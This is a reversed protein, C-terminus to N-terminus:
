GHAALWRWVHDAFSRRVIMEVRPGNEGVGRHLLTVATKAFMTGACDGPGFARPHLDLACASALLDLAGPGAIELTAHGSGVATVAPVSRELAVRLLHSRADIGSPNSGDGSSAADILLFEDPGLWALIRGDAAVFRCPAPFALGTAALLAERANSDGPDARVNLMTRFPREVITAQRAALTAGGYADLPSARAPSPQV